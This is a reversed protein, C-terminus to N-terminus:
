RRSLASLNQGDKKCIRNIHSDITIENDVIVGLVTEENSNKFTKAITYLHIMQVCIWICMYHCKESNLIIYNELFWNTIARFDTQFDM